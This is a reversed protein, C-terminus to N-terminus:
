DEIDFLDRLGDALLNFGLVVVFIGLGAFISLWWLDPLFGSGESVMTGLDPTPPPAGLGLFSLTAGLLIVFGMDISGKTLLTPACNPLLERVMILWRPAGIVEAAVIYGENRLSRVLNYVIRAYWPWWVTAIAAMALVQSTGVLGLIAMALVLSPIALFVDTLRMLVTEVHRGCYAALMGVITGIPIAISLVVFGLMLSNRFGFIIRSLIDRGVSDTGLWNRANPPQNANAFDVFVGAHRPFPAVLPAAVASIIVLLILALGLVSLPNRAFRRWARRRSSIEAIAGDQADPAAHVRAGEEAAPRAAIESTM